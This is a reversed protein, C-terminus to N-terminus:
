DKPEELSLIRHTIAYDVVGMFNKSDTKEMMKKKHNEVTKHSIYLMDAIDFASHGKLVLLLVEIERKSLVHNGANKQTDIPLNVLIEKKIRSLMNHYAQTLLLLVSLVLVLIMLTAVWFVIKFVEENEM